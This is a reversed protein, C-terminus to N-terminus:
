GDYKKRVKKIAKMLEIELSGSVLIGGRIGLIVNTESPSRYCSGMMINQFFERIFVLADREKWGCKMLIKRVAPKDVATLSRFKYRMVAELGRLYKDVNGSCYKFAPLIDKLEDVPAKNRSM